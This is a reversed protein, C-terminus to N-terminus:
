KLKIEYIPFIKFYKLIPSVNVSPTGNANTAIIKLGITENRSIRNADVSASVTTQSYGLNIFFLFIYLKSNNIIM